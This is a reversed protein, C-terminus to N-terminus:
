QETGERASSVAPEGMPGNGLTRRPVFRLMVTALFAALSFTYFNWQLPLEAMVIASGVPPGAIAGFRGVGLSWGLATARLKPSYFESVCANIVVQAGIASIGAIAILTFGLAPAPEFSLLGISVAASLCAISAVKSTGMRDAAWGTLFMGAVGGINLVVLFTVATGLEYGSSRMITPLWTYLGYIVLLCLFTAAWLLGTGVVGKERFLNTVSGTGIRAKRRSKRPVADERVIDRPLVRLALPIVLLAAAGVGLVMRFEGQPALRAAVVGATMGGFPYASFTMGYILTRRRPATNDLALASAVPLLCGLGLGALTRFLGFLLASPAMAAIGVALSFWLLCGLLLARRGFVRLLSGASAAGIAMGVLTCAGIAGIDSASLGWETYDLLSPVVGGYSVVDYGDFFILLWCLLIVPARTRVAESGNGGNDV